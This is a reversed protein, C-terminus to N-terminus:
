FKTAIVKPSPFINSVPFDGLSFLDEYFAFTDADADLTLKITFQIYKITIEDGTVAVNYPAMLFKPSIEGLEDGVEYFKQSSSGKGTLEYLYVDGNNITQVSALLKNKIKAHGIKCHEKREAQFENYAITM